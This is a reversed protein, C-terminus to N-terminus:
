KSKVLSNLNTKLNNLKVQSSVLEELAEIVADEHRLLQPDDDMSDLVNEINNEIQDISKVTTDIKKILFDINSTAKFIYKLLLGIFVFLMLFLTYQINKYLFSKTHFFESHILIFKDFEVVLELNANYINKITKELLIHTYATTIKRQDKFKKVDKYFKNWLLMIKDSQNKIKKSSIKKLKDKRKDINKLFGNIAKDLQITTANKNKYVYFINKSIEQTFAKQKNITELFNNNINNQKTQTYSLVILIISILFILIGILKIKNM